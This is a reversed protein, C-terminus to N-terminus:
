SGILSTIIPGLFDEWTWWNVAVGLAVVIITIVPWSFLRSLIPHAERPVAAVPSKLELAAVRARLAELEGELGEIRGRLYGVEESGHM